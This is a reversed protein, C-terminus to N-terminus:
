IEGTDGIGGFDVVAFELELLGKWGTRQGERTFTALLIDELECIYRWFSRSLAEVRQLRESRFKLLREHAEVHQSVHRRRAPLETADKGKPCLSFGDKFCPEFNPLLEAPRLLKYAENRARPGDLPAGSRAGRGM